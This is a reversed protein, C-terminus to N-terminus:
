SEEESVEDDTVEVAEGDIVNDDYEDDTIKSSAGLAYAVLGVAGIVVGTAIKKGNKKLGNKVKSGFSKIKSEKTEAMEAVETTDVTEEEVEIAKIEENM